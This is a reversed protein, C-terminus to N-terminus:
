FEEILTIKNYLILLIQDFDHLFLGFICLPSRLSDNDTDMKATLRWSFGEGKGVAMIRTHYNCFKWAGGGPNRDLHADKIQQGCNVERTLEM